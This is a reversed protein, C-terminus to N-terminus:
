GRGATAALYYHLVQAMLPTPYIYEASKTFGLLNIEGAPFTIAGFVTM